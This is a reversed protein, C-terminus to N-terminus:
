ACKVMEEEKDIHKTFQFKEDGCLHSGSAKLQHEKNVLLKVLPGGLVFINDSKQQILLKEEKDGLQFWIPM